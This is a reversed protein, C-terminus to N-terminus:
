HNLYAKCSAPMGSVTVVADIRISGGAPVLNAFTDGGGIIESQDNFCAVSVGLNKFDEATDNKMGFSATYSDSYVNSIETSELIPLISRDPVGIGYDSASVYAEISAVESSNAGEKYHFVPLALEQDKWSPIALRENTALIAGSDDFFNVTATVFEGALSEGSTKVIVVAMASNSSQGFGSDIIEVGSKSEDSQSAINEAGDSLVGNTESVTEATSESQSVNSTEDNTKVFNFLIFAVLGIVALIGIFSTLKRLSM